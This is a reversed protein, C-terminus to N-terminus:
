YNLSYSLGLNIGYAMLTGSELFNMEFSGGLSATLSIAPIYYAFSLGVNFGLDGGIDALDNKYSSSTYTASLYDYTYAIGRETGALLYYGRLSMTFFLNEVLNFILDTGLEPGFATHKLFRGASYYTLNLGAFLKWNPMVWIDGDLHATVNTLNKTVTPDDGHEIKSYRGASFVFTAGFYNNIKGSVFPEALFGSAGNAVFDNATFDLLGKYNFKIGANLGWGGDRERAHEDKRNVEYYRTEVLPSSGAKGGDGNITQLAQSKSAVYEVSSKPLVIEEASALERRVTYSSANEDVIHCPIEGQSTKIFRRTKYNTHYLIRLVDKRSITTEKGDDTKITIQKDDESTIEGEVIGGNKLFVSEAFAPATLCAAIIGAFLIIKKM